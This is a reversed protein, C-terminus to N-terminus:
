KCLLFITFRLCFLEQRSSFALDECCNGDHRIAVLSESNQLISEGNNEKSCSFVNFFTEFFSHVLLILFSLRLLSLFYTPVCLDQFLWALVTIHMPRKEKRIMRYFLYIGQQRQDTWCYIVSLTLIHSFCWHCVRRLRKKTKVVNQSWRHYIVSCFCPM